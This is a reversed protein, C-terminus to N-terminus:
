MLKRKVDPRLRRPKSVLARGTPSRFRLDADANGEVTWGGEHVLHHHTYCLGVGNASTTHGGREWQHSHHLHHIPRECGAFRCRDGDRHCILRALWTPWARTARGVGITTGDPADVAWEIRGDCALRRAVEGAVGTGDSLAARGLRDEGTLLALDAHVVVTARDPDPDAGLRWGALAVLADARQQPLSPYMGTAPDAEATRERIRDLAVRVTEAADDPLFVAVRTGGDHDRRFTVGRREHVAAPDQGVLARSRAMRDLMEASYGPGDEAWLADTGPTALRCLAVLQDWSLRGEGFVAAIAPLVQISRAVRVWEHATRQRLGLQLGLWAVMGTQGDAKWAEREDLEAVLRLLELRTASELAGLQLAAETLSEDAFDGYGAGLDACAQGRRGASVEPEREELEPEVPEPEVPEPEVTDFM